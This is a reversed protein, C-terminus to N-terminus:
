MSGDLHSAKSSRGLFTLPLISRRRNFSSNSSLAFAAGLAAAAAAAFQHRTDRVDPGPDRMDDTLDQLRLDIGVVDIKKVAGDEILLDCAGDLGQSPDVIRGGHILLSPM